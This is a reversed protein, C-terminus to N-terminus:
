KGELLKRWNVVGCKGEIEIGKSGRIKRVEGVGASRGGKNEIAKELGRGRM